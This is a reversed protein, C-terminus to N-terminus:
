AADQEEDDAASEAPPRKDPTPKDPPPTNPPENVKTPPSPKPSHGPM